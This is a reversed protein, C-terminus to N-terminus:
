KSYSFRYGEYVAIAYFVLDIASFFTSVLKQVLTFSLVGLVDMYSAHMAQAYFALYSLVSGLLCGAFGCVAGLIGFKQSHGHGVAKIAHGVIYGIAIAMIGLEMNTVVTVVAWIL